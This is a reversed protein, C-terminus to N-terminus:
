VGQKRIKQSSKKETLRGMTEEKVESKSETPAKLKAVREAIEKKSLKKM